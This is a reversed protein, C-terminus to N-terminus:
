IMLIIILKIVKCFFFFNFVNLIFIVCDNVLSSDWGVVIVVLCFWFLYFEVFGLEFGLDWCVLLWGFKLYM